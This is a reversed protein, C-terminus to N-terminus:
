KNRVLRFGSYYSWDDTGTSARFTVTQDNFGCTYCGGRAIHDEAFPDLVAPNDLAHKKYAHADRADLCKEGVNGLMDYLGFPNPAFSGVPATVAYGDDCNVSNKLPVIKDYSLDTLNEFLCPSQDGFYWPTTTGARAAYEWQAESPLDFHKGTKDSLWRAFDRAHSWTDNVVPQRDGNLSLGKFKGSNHRPYYARYQKNTVEYRGMWFGDLCVKHAPKEYRYVPDSSNSGMIFCGAPVWVFEMGVIPDRWIQGPVPDQTQGMSLSPWLCLSLLLLSGIVKM